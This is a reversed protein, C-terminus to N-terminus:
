SRTKFATLDIKLLSEHIDKFYTLIFPHTKLTDEFFTEPIRARSYDHAHRQRTPTLLFQRSIANFNTFM